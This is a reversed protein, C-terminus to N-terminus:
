GSVKGIRAETGHQERVSVGCTFPLEFDRVARRGPFCRYNNNSIIVPTCCSYVAQAGAVSSLEAKSIENKARAIRLEDRVKRRWAGFDSIQGCTDAVDNNDKVITVDIAPAASSLSFQSQRFGYNVGRPLDAIDGEGDCSGHTSTIKGKKEPLSSCFVVQEKAEVLPVDSRGKGRVNAAPFIDACSPTMYDQKHVVSCHKRCSPIVM